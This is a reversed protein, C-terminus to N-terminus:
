HGSGAPAELFKSRLRRTTASVPPAVRPPTPARAAPRVFDHPAMMQMPREAFGPQPAPYAPRDPIGVPRPMRVSGHPAFAASDLEIPREPVALPPRTGGAVGRPPVRAHDPRLWARPSPNPAVPDGHHHHGHHRWGHHRIGGYYWPWGDYYGACSWSCVGGLSLGFGFSLDYLSGYGYDPGYPDYAGYDYYYAPPPYAGGDSTYYSGVGGAGPQVLAYGTACGALALAGAALLTIRVLPRSMSHSTERM